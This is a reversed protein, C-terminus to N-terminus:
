VFGVVPLHGSYGVMFRHIGQVRFESHYIIMALALFILRTSLRTWSFYADPQVIRRAAQYVSSFFDDPQRIYSHFRVDSVGGHGRRIQSAFVASNLNQIDHRPLAGLSRLEELSVEECHHIM